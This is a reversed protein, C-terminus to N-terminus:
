QIKRGSKWDCTSCKQFKRGLLDITIITGKGCHVCNVPRDAPRSNYDEEQAREQKLKEFEEAYERDVKKLRKLMSRNTAKLERIEKQLREVEDDQKKRAM